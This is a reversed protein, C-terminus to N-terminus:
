ALTMTYTLTWTEGVEKTGESSIKRCLNDGADTAANVVTFEEWAYNAEAGTFVSRFIVQENAPPSTPYDVEMAKWLKNAAAQLGTQAAAAATSSDGVGLYTNGNSYADGGGGILLLLLAAIGENLLLNGEIESVAYSEGRVYAADDAFKEIRWSASEVAREILGVPASQKHVSVSDRSQGRDGQM